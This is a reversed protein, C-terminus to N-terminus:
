IIPLPVKINLPHLGRGHSKNTPHGPSESFKVKSVVKINLIHLGQSMATGIIVKVQSDHISLKIKGIAKLSFTIPSHYITSTNMMQCSRELLGHLLFQSDHVTLVIKRTGCVITKQKRDDQLYTELKVNIKIIKKCFIHNSKGPFRNTTTKCKYM